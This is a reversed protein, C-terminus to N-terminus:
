RAGRMVCSADTGLSTEHAYAHRRAYPQYSLFRTMADHDQLTLGDLTDGTAESSARCIDLDAPVQSQIAVDSLHTMRTMPHGPRHTMCSANKDTM